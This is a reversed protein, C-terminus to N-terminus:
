LIKLGIWAPPLPNEAAYDMLTKMLYVAAICMVVGISSLIIGTLAWGRHTGSQRRAMVGLVIGALGAVVGAINFIPHGLSIIISLIGLILSAWVM